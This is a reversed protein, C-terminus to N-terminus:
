KELQSLRVKAGSKVHSAASQTKVMFEKKETKIRRQDKIVPKHLNRKQKSEEEPYSPKSTADSTMSDDSEKDDDDKYSSIGSKNKNNYIDEQEDSSLDEAIPSGIYATWGSESSSHEEEPGISTNSSEM